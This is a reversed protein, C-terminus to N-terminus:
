SILVQRLDTTGDDQILAYRDVDADLFEYYLRIQQLQRNTELLPRTDWVRINNITQSNQQLDALTLAYDPNFPEVQITDLDFASRTLAISREIYPRERVLENPQVVLRQVVMPAVMGGLVVLLGYFGLGWFLLRLTPPRKSLKPLTAQSRHGLDGLWKVLSNARVSWFATRWLMVWALCFAVLSLGTNVPLNVHVDTYGAGYIIGQDSYLLQYRSLWHGFSTALLLSGALGYLHRQQVPLFRYFRGQSLSEGSLLYILTVSILAFFLVGALWFELLEAVPLRFIYFGIDRGFLPESQGFATPQLAPLVKLWQGSLVLAFGLSMLVAAIASLVQPLIVFGVAVLAILIAQWPAAILQNGLTQVAEPKIWLPVPLSRNYVTNSPQWYSTVVQAHYLLQVAMLLGLGFTILLLWRLGIGQRSRRDGEVKVYAWRQTLWLNGGLIGLSSLFFFLGLSVQTRLRLWFVSLYDVEQFWLGEAGFFTAIDFVLLTAVILTAWKLYSAQRKPLKRDRVM